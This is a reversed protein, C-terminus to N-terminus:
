PTTLHAQCPGLDKPPKEVLFMRNGDAQRTKMRGSVRIRVGPRINATVGALDFGQRDGENQLVLGNAGSATCGTLTHDHRALFYVGVGIGAGVAAIGVAVGVVQGKTPGINFSGSQAVAGTTKMFLLAGLAVIM